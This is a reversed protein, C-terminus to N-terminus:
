WNNDRDEWPNWQTYSEINVPIEFDINYCYSSNTNCLRAPVICYITNNNKQAYWSDQVHFFVVNGSKEEETYIRKLALNPWYAVDNYKPHVKALGKCIETSNDISIPQEKHYGKVLLIAIIILIALVSVLLVKLAKEM